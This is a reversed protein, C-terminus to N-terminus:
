PRDVFRDQFDKGALSGGAQVPAVTLRLLATWSASLEDPLHQALPTPM